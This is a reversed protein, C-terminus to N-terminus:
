HPAISSRISATALMIQSAGDVNLWTNCLIAQCIGSNMSNHVAGAIFPEPRTQFHGSSLCSVNNAIQEEINSVNWAKHEGFFHYPYFDLYKFDFGLDRIQWTQVCLFQHPLHMESSSFIVATQLFGM